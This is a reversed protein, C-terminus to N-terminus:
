EHAPHQGHVKGHPKPRVKKEVELYTAFEKATLVKKIKEDRVIALKDVMEKPPPGPQDASPKVKELETFFTTFAANIIKQKGQSLTMEKALAVQLDKVRQEVSPPKPPQALLSVVSMLGLM